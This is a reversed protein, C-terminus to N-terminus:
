KKKQEKNKQQRKTVAPKKVKKPEEKKPESTKEEVESYKKVIRNVESNTVFIKKALAAVFGYYPNFDEDEMCKVVTKTGDKWFVITAPANFIIQKPIYKSDPKPQHKKEEKKDLDIGFVNLIDNNTITYTPTGLSVSYSNSAAYGGSATTSGSTVTTTVINQSLNAM